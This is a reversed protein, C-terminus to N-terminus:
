IGLKLAKRCESIFRDTIEEPKGKLYEKLIPEITNDFVVDISYSSENLNKFFAPGIRHEPSIGESILRNVLNVNEALRDLWFISKDKHIDKLSTLMIDETNINVWNFKHKFAFDMTSADNDVENMTCVIHLNRPIFFGNEFCDFKMQEAFGIHSTSYNAKGIDDAQVIHYAKLNSLRTDFRNEIGRYDEDLAFLVDGFVKSVDARNVEDIILYYDRTGKEFKYEETEPGFYDNTMGDDIAEKRDRISEYLRQVVKQKKESYMSMFGPIAYELNDEVIKRCFAKFIGDLRVNTPTTSNVINVPRLGEIFDSYEYSQHFQVFKFGDYGKTMRRAYKRVEYTKGTGSPGVFIVQKNLTIANSIIKRINNKGSDSDKPAATVPAVPTVPTVPAAPAAPTEAAKSVNDANQMFSAFPILPTNPRLPTVPTIAPKPAEQVAPAEEIAPAEPVAPATPAPIESVAPEEYAPVEPAAPTEIAQSAANNVPTESVAQEEHHGIIVNLYEPKDEVGVYPVEEMTPVSNDEIVAICPVEEMTPVKNEEIVAICPIENLNLKSKQLGADMFRTAEKLNTLPKIEKGPKMRADSLDGAIRKQKKDKKNKKNNFQQKNNQYNVQEAQNQAQAAAPAAEAAASEDAGTEDITDATDAQTNLAEEETAAPIDEAVNEAVTNEVFANANEVTEPVNDVAANVTEVVQPANEVAANVAEVTGPVSEAVTNVAEVEEPVNEAVANVAEAPNSTNEVVAQPVEAPQTAQTNEVYDPFAKLPSKVEPQLRGLESELAQIRTTGAVAAQKVEAQAATVATAAQQVAGSSVPVAAAPKVADNTKKVAPNIMECTIHYHNIAYDNSLEALIRQVVIMSESGSLRNLKKRYSKILKEAGRSSRYNRNVYDFFNECFASVTSTNKGALIINKDDLFRINKIMDFQRNEPTIKMRLFDSIKM